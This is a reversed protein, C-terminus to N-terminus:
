RIAPVSTGEILCWAIVPDCSQRALPSIGNNTYRGAAPDPIPNCAGPDTMGAIPNGNDDLAACPVAASVGLAKYTITCSGGAPTPRTDELTAQFETGDMAATVYIQVNSWALTIDVPPLAPATEIATTAPDDVVAPIAPLVLHTPSTMPVTCFDNDDAIAGTFDGLSYLQRTQEDTLDVAYTEVLNTVEATRVAVSGRDYDPQGQSDKAFYAGMGVRPDAYFSDPGFTADCAATRSQEILRVAFPGPTVICHPKPEDACQALCAALAGLIAAWAVTPPTRPAKV